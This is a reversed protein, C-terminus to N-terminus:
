FLWPEHWFHRAYPWSLAALENILVTLIVEDPQPQPIQLPSQVIAGFGVQIQEMAAILYTLFRRSDNDGEDLALWTYAYDEPLQALWDVVLTTKGYGAPAAVLLFRDQLGQSMCAPKNLDRSLYGMNTIRDEM